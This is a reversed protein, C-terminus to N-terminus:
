ILKMCGDSLFGMSYRKALNLLHDFSFPKKGSIEDARLRRNTRTMARHSPALSAISYVRALAPWSHFLFVRNSCTYRKTRVCYQFLVSCKVTRSTHIQESLETESTINAMFYLFWPWQASTIHLIQFMTFFFFPPFPHLFFFFMRLPRIIAM